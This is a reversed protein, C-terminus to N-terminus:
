LFFAETGTIRCVSYKVNMLELLAFLRQHENERLERLTLVEGSRQFISANLYLCPNLGQKFM